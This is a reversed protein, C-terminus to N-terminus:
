TKTLSAAPSHCFPEEAGWPWGNARHQGDSLLADGLGLDQGDRIVAVLAEAVLSIYVLCWNSM